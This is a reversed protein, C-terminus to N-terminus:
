RALVTVTPGAALYRRAARQVDALGVARLGEAERQAQDIGEGFVHDRCLNYAQGLRTVRRMRMRGLHGNVAAELEDPTAELTGGTLYQLMGAEAEGVNEPRTGMSGILAARDGRFFAASIGLSYALGRTERLDQQMAESALRAALALAWRDEPQIQVVRGIRLASQEGGVEVEERQDLKTVAPPTSHPPVTVGLGEDPFFSAVQALIDERSVNGVVALTLHVPEFYAPAFERVDELTIRSLSAPTGMVAAALPHDGYLAEAMTARAVARPRKAGRGLIGMMEGRDSELAEEDLRPETIMLALLRLAETYYEDVCELRIFSFEPTTYYDDYPIWPNDTVKLEAGISALREALQERDYPGAGNRLMRHLLDAIGAKGEPERASRDRVMLHLGFMRTTPTAAHIVTMGNPLHGVSPAQIETVVPPAAPAVEEYPAEDEDWPRTAEARYGWDTPDM